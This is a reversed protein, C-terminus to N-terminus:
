TRGTARQKEVEDLLEFWQPELGLRAIWDNLYNWNLEDDLTQLISSVDRVHKTQQSIAFYRLKYLIL